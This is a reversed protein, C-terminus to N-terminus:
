KVEERIVKLKTPNVQYPHQKIPQSDGVDADYFTYSTIGPVDTFVSSFESILARLEKQKNEPLHGLKQELNFLVDSNPLKPGKVASEVPCIDIPSEPLSSAAVVTSVTKLETEATTERKHYAKLMNIHCLRRDKCHGPTRIVYDVENV